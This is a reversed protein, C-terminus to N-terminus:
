HHHGGTEEHETAMQIYVSTLTAFLFAQITCVVVGFLLLPVPLVWEFLSAFSGALLHDINLNLFLRIGLTFPRLAHSLVEFLAIPIGMIGLGMLFHKAYGVIGHARIGMYNYYLFSAGGLAFTTNLSSSPSSSLPLLGMLNSLLVFIFLAAIFPFHKKGHYGLTDIVMKHLSEVLIDIIGALSAKKPPIIFSELKGSIRFRAITSVTLIIGFVILAGNVHSISKEYPLFPISTLPFRELWSQPGHHEM